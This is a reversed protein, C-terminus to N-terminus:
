LETIVEATFNVATTLLGVDEPVFRTPEDEFEFEAIADGNARLIARLVASVTADHDVPMVDPNERLHVSLQVRELIQRETAHVLRSGMLPVVALCAGGDSAALVDEMQESVQGSGDDLFVPVGPLEAELLGKIVGRIDQRKM